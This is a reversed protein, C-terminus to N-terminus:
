SMVGKERIADNAQYIVLKKKRLYTKLEWLMATMIYAPTMTEANRNFVRRAGRLAIDGLIDKAVWRYKNRTIRYFSKEAAPYVGWIM